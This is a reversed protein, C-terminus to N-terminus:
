VFWGATRAQRQAIKSRAYQLAAQIQEANLDWFPHLSFASRGVDFVSCRLSIRSKPTPRQANPTPRKRGVTFFSYGRM